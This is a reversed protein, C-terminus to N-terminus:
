HAVCQRKVTVIPRYVATAILNSNSNTAKTAHTAPDQQQTHVTSRQPMLTHILYTAHIVRTARTACTAIQRLTRCPRTPPQRQTHINSRQPLSIPSTQEMHEINQLKNCICIHIYKYTYVHCMKGYKYICIYIYRYIQISYMQINTYM